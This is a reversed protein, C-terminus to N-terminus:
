YMHIQKHLNISVAEIQNVAPLYIIGTIPSLMGTFATVILFRILKSQSFVTYPEEKENIAVAHEEDFTISDDNKEQDESKISAATISDNISVNDKISKEPSAM